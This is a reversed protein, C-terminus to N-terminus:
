RHEGVRRHWLSPLRPIPRKTREEEGRGARVAALYQFGGSLRHAPRLYSGSKWGLVKFCTMEAWASYAVFLADPGIDFPPEAGFEGRWLKITQVHRLNEDMVHAV